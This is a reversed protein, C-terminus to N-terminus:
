MTQTYIAVKTFITSKNEFRLKIVGNEPDFRQSSGVSAGLEHPKEETGMFIFTKEKSIEYGKEVVFGIEQAANHSFELYTVEGPSLSLETHFKKGEDANIWRSYWSRSAAAAQKEKEEASQEMERKYNQDLAKECSSLSIWAVIALPILSKIKM